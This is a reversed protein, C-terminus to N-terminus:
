KCVKKTSTDCVSYGCTRGGVLLCVTSFLVSRFVSPRGKGPRSSFPLFLVLVMRRSGPISLSLFIVNRHDKRYPDDGNERFWWKEHSVSGLFECQCSVRYVRAVNTRDESTGDKGIHSGIVVRM